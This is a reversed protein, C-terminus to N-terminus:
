LLLSSPSPLSPTLAAIMAEDLVNGKPANLVARWIAGEDFVEVKVPGDTSVTEM